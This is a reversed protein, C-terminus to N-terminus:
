KSLEEYGFIQIYFKEDDTKKNKQKKEKLSAVKDKVKTKFAQKDEASMGDWKKKIDAKFEKRQAPTMNKYKQKAEKYDPQSAEALIITKQFDTNQGANVVPSLGLSTLPFILLTGKNLM